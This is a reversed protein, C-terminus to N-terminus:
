AKAPFQGSYLFRGQIPDMLVAYHTDENVIPDSCLWGLVTGLTVSVESEEERIKTNRKWKLHMAQSRPLSDNKVRRRKLQQQFVGHDKVRRDWKEQMSAQREKSEEIIEAMSQMGDVVRLGTYGRDNAIAEDMVSATDEDHNTKILFSSSRRWFATQYDKEMAVISSGDCFILYAATTRLCPVEELIEELTSTNSLRTSGEGEVHRLLSTISQRLGLLVLLYNFYFGVNRRSDHVARFNLSISLDKRVGTLVGVFGVYTICTALVKDPADDRVFELQVILDRLPDMGWDLTRFHVMRTWLGDLMRVGGSTCGMLLDLVVNLCILLYLSIGTVHSIGSIEATEEDTYLRRLFLRALWHIPKTPINPSLNHIVDDFISTVSRMRDKYIHALAKYREEPPNSLNIRFIPPQQSGLEKLRTTM